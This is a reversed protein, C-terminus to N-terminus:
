FGGIPVGRLFGSPLTAAVYASFAGAAAAVVGFGLLLTKVPNTRRVKVSDIASRAIALRAQGGAESSAALGVISDDSVTAYSLTVPQGSQWVQIRGVKPAVGEARPPGWSTCGGLEAALMVVVATRRIRMPDVQNTLAEQPVPQSRIPSAPFETAHVSLM